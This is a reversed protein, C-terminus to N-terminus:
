SIKESNVNFWLLFVFVLGIIFLFLVFFFCENDKLAKEKVMSHGLPYQCSETDKNKELAPDKLGNITVYLLFYM